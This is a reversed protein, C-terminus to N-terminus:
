RNVPQPRYGLAAYIMPAIDTSFSIAGADHTDNAAASAPVHVLLPVQLIQPFLYYAHGWRGEEGLMEGHDATLVVVSDDDLRQRTLVDLFEGFCRDIVHVRAAYPAHFGPYS